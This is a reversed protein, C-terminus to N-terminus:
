RLSRSATEHCGSWRTLALKLEPTREVIRHHRCGALFAELAELERTGLRYHIHETLYRLALQPDRRGRWAYDEAITRVQQVGRRRSEHFARYLDRDVLGPRAAWVAYVFPLGTWDTWALGLDIRRIGEDCPPDFLAKDGIRVRGVAPDEDGSRRDATFLPEAKWVEAYLLRTLANTTRSELDLRVERLEEPARRAELFVSAAPGRSGIALGPLIELPPLDALAIVPLLGVDLDGAAMLAALEAPTAYSLEIRDAALGQEFGLVLPRTNLYSVAGVRLM